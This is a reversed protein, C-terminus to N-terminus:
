SQMQLTAANAEVNITETLSGVELTIDGVSVKSSIPLVVNSNEKKKFGAAEVTLQYTGPPLQAFLFDGTSDSTTGQRIGLDQSTVVVQAGPVVAGNPDKITGSISGNTQSWAPLFVLCLLAFARTSFRTK